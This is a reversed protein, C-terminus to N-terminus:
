QQTDNSEERIALMELKQSYRKQNFVDPAYERAKELSKAVRQFQGLETYARALAFHFEHEKTKRRIAQKYHRVATQYDGGAFATEGLKFHYYPNKRRFHEVKVLLPAAEENRGQNEYLKALNTMATYEHKNLKIAKLYADEAKKPRNAYSWAVGLNSWAYSLKPNPRSRSKSGPSHRKRIARGM